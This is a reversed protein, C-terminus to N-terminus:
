NKKVKQWLPPTMVWRSGPMRSHSTLHVKPLMATFLALPPSSIRTSSSWIRLSSASISPWEIHWCIQFAWFHGCSQFLDTKMGFFTWVTACNHENWTSALYHEFDKLSPKLLAHVSLKWIYLSSKSFAASDSILNCVDMSACFFCSFELFVDVEADNVISFGKHPDCCM